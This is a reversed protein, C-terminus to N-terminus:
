YRQSRHLTGMMTPTTDFVGSNILADMIKNTEQLVNLTQQQKERTLPPASRQAQTPKVQM